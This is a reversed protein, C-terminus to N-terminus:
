KATPAATGTKVGVIGSAFQSTQQPNLLLQEFLEAFANSNEFKETKEKSKEFSRGDQSKEGYSMLIIDEIFQLMKPMDESEALKKAYADIDMGLKATLKLVELKNMNFYATEKRQQGNFDTYKITKKIM